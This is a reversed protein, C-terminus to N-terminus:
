IIFKSTAPTLDEISLKAVETIENERMIDGKGHPLGRM